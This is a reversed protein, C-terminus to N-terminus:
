RGKPATAFQIFTAALLAMSPAGFLLFLEGTTM